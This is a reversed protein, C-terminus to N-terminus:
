SLPGEKFLFAIETTILLSLYKTNFVKAARIEFFSAKLVRGYCCTQIVIIIVSNLIKVYQWSFWFLSIQYVFIVIRFFFIPSNIFSCICFDTLKPVFIFGQFIDVLYGCNRFKLVYWFYQNDPLSM